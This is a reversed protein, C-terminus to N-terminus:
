KAKGTNKFYLQHWAKSGVACNKVYSENVVEMDNKKELVDVLVNLVNIMANDNYTVESRYSSFDPYYQPWGGNPYQADLLYEIGKEAATLFRKDNSKKYAKALYRIEKTTANNDITADIGAEYGSKLENLEGTYATHHYDVKEKDFHKPWGGNKRQYLLM